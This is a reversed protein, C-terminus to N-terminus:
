YLKECVRCLCCGEEDSSSSYEAKQIYLPPKESINANRRELAKEFSLEILTEFSDAVNRNELCSTELFTYGKEIALNAGEESSVKRNEELDTKNGLLIIKIDKKCKEEIQECFYSKIEDFSSRNTIDYVLLCGDAKRYYQHGLARFREQGGTDVIRANVLSGDSLQYSSVVFPTGVTQIDILQAKQSM